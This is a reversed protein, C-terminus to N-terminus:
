PQDVQKITFAFEGTRRLLGAACLERLAREVVPVSKGIVRSLEKLTFNGMMVVCYVRVSASSLARFAPTDVERMFIVGFRGPVSRTDASTNSKGQDAKRRM